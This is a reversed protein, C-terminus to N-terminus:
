HWFKPPDERDGKIVRLNGKNAKKRPAGFDQNLLKHIIPNGQYRIFLYSLAMTLLHAWSSLYSSFLASYLEIGILIFCFTRARMPFILMMSLQRDPYLTAYAILLAFNLGSLGYLPTSFMATGNFLLISVLGYVLGTVLIIVALFRRYLRSGWLAEIESGVFWVLLANFIFGILQTEVFPYTILQFIFGKSLAAGSLGLLQPLLFAGIAKGIASLIFCSLSVILIVKNTKSLPPAQFQM